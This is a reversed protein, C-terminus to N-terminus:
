KPDLPRLFGDIPRAIGTTKNRPANLGAGTKVADKVKIAGNLLAHSASHLQCDFTLDPVDGWEWRVWGRM